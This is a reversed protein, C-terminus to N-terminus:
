GDVLTNVDLGCGGDLEFMKPLAFGACDFVGEAFKNVGGVGAPWGDVLMNVDLGCGDGLEFMNPLAFGAGDFM